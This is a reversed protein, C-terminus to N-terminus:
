TNIGVKITCRLVSNGHWLADNIVHWLCLGEIWMKMTGKSVSGAVWMSIFMSLITELAPMCDPEPMNFNNCFKIFCILSSAYNSLMSPLVCNAMTLFHRIITQALFLQSAQYM